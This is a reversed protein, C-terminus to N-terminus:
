NIAHLNHYFLIPFLRVSILNRYAVSVNMFFSTKQRTVLMPCLFYETDGHPEIGWPSESYKRQRMSTVLRFFDKKIEKGLEFKGDRKNRDVSVNM